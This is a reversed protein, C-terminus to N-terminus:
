AVVNFTKYLCHLVNNQTTYVGSGLNIGRVHVSVSANPQELGSMKFYTIFLYKNCEFLNSVKLNILNAWRYLIFSQM